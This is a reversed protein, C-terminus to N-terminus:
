IPILRYIQAAVSCGKGKPKREVVSIPAVTIEELSGSTMLLEVGVDDRGPSKSATLFDMISRSLWGSYSSPLAPGTM